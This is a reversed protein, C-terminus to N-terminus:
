LTVTMLAKINSIQVINTVAPNYSQLHGYEAVTYALYSHLANRKYTTPPATNFM